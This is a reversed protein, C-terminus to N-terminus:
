CLQLVKTTFIAGYEYIELHELIHQIPKDQEIIIDKKFFELSLKKVSKPVIQSLDVNCDVTIALEKMRFVGMDLGNIASSNLKISHIKVFKRSMKFKYLALLEKDNKIIVNLPHRHVFQSLLVSARLDCDSEGSFHFTLPSYNYKIATNSLM